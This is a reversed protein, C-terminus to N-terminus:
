SRICDIRPKGKSSDRESPQDKFTSYIKLHGNVFLGDAQSVVNEM